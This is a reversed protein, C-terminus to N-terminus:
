RLMCSLAGNFANLGNHRKEYIGIDHAPTHSVEVVVIDQDYQLNKAQMAPTVSMGMIEPPSPIFM